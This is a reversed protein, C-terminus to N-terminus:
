TFNKAQFQLMTSALFTTIAAATSSKNSTTTQVPDYADTTIQMM